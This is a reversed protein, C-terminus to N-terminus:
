KAKVSAGAALLTRVVAAHGEAAAWMLATQHRAPEAANVDAGRSVLLSVADAVGTRAATMLVTEGDPQKTNPDAGASLLREILTVSVQAKTGERERSGRLEAPIVKTDNFVLADGPRLLEPLDRITRDAFPPSARPEVVLLRAADRPSAPRLAILEEPLPYDFDDVRM